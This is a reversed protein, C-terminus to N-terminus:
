PETPAQDRRFTLDAELDLFRGVIFTPAKIRLPMRDLRGSVRLRIEDSSLAVIEATLDVPAESGRAHVVAAATWGDSAVTAERVAVRVTPHTTADLFRQERLHSDRHENATAIGAVSLDVWAEGLEGQTSVSVAGREVPMSGRTTTVLKDRVQFRGASLEGVVSWRGALPTRRQTTVSQPSSQANM